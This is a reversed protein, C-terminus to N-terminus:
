IREVELGAMKLDAKSFFGAMKARGTHFGAIVWARGDPNLFWSISRQLNTHQHPMWLCDAVLLRTFSHKYLKSFHALPPISHVSDAVRADDVVNEDEAM